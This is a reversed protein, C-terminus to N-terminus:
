FNELDLEMRGWAVGIRTLHERSYWDRVGFERLLIQSDRFVTFM